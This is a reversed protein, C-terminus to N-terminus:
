YLYKVSNIKLNKKAIKFKLNNNVKLNDIKLNKVKYLINNINFEKNDIKIFLMIIKQQIEYYLNSDFCKIDKLTIDKNDLNTNIFELRTKFQKSIKELKNNLFKNIKSYVKNLIDGFYLKPIHGCINILINNIISQEIFSYDDENDLIHEVTNGNKDNLIYYDKEKNYKIYFSYNNLYYDREISCNIKFIAHNINDYEIKVIYNSYFQDKLIYQPLSTNDESIEFSFESNYVM